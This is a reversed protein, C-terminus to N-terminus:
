EVLHFHYFFKKNLENICKKAGVRTLTNNVNVLNTSLFIIKDTLFDLKNNCANDDEDDSDVYLTSYHIILNLIDVPHPRFTKYTIGTEIELLNIFEKCLPLDHEYLSDDDLTFILDRDCDDSFDQDGM